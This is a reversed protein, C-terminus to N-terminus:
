GTLQGNLLYRSPRPTSCDVHRLEPSRGRSGCRLRVRYPRTVGLSPPWGAPYPSALSRSLLLPCTCRESRGPHTPAARAFRDTSSGPLGPTTPPLAWRRLPLCLAASPWPRSDSRSMTARFRPLARPAFPGSRLMDRCSSPVGAQVRPTGCRGATLGSRTRQSATAPGRALRRAGARRAHGRALATALAPHPFDARGTRHPPLPDHVRM